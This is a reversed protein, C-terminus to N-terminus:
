RYKARRDPRIRLDREDEYKKAFYAEVDKANFRYEKTGSDVPQPFEGDKMYRICSSRSVGYIENIDVFSVTRGSGSAASIDSIAESVVRRVIDEFEEASLAVLVGDM